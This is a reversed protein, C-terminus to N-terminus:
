SKVLKGKAIVAQIYKIIEVVIIISFPLAAIEFWEELNLPVTKLIGNLVPTVSLVQLCIALLMVGLLIPNTFVGIKELKQKNDYPLNFFLSRNIARSNQVNWIQFFSLTCFAVTVGKAYLEKLETIKATFTNLTFVPLNNTKSYEILQNIHNNFVMKIHETNTNILDTVAIGTQTHFSWLVQIENYYALLTGMMMMLGAIIIRSYFSRPILADEKKRPPLAMSNGHEREFALPFTSSGDTVLNIWLLQAPLIPLPFGILVSTAITLLGGFSTALIYLLIHQLNKFIVRGRRIANVISTFNDDLLVMHASEKAVESGSGMAIGIDAKKLAPADNVGDGTMAVIKNHKQLAEVIRYKHEPAVRAYVDIELVRQFLEEDSMAELDTGKLAIPSPKDEAINVAKGVARATEIHDGTIMVVRVGASACERVAIAVEERVADQIGAMGIFTLDKLNDLEVENDEIEAYAMGLVRLGKNSYESVKDMLKQKNLVIQNGDADITVKCKDLVRESAGKVLVYSKNDKTVRVAMMQLESEFPVDISVKWGSSNFNLKKAVIMLAAETADGTIKWDKGNEALKSETCFNGVFAALQLSKSNNVDYSVKDNSSFVKGDMEYGSGSVEYETEGVYLNMVTMQNKTLTGTKDSCIVNTSGLTEVAALKKVIAKQKSMQNLGVSLTITISVPLGEPIASVAIGVSTLLMSIWDFGRLLGVIFILVVITLISISLKKGFDEIYHQLPTVDNEAESMKESIKGFESNTGVASVVALARGKQIITGSYVMNIRDGLSSNEPIVVDHKKHIAFSEGTLMSEDVLLNHTELLRADASVRDGSELVIIDGTAVETTPITKHEGNRIVRATPATMNQLAKLASAAKIEQFFGIITNLLIVVGIVISDHWGSTYGNIIGAFILIYIIPDNFQQLFVVWYPTPIGEPMKNYGYKNYSEVIQESNLGHEKDIKFEELIKNIPESYWKM